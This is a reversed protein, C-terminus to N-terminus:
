RGRLHLVQHGNLVWDDGDRVATTSMTLTNSGADPETIAFVVKSEGSAM